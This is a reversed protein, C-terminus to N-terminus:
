LADCAFFYFIFLSLLVGEFLGSKNVHKTTKYLSAMSYISIYVYGYLTRYQCNPLHVIFNLLNKNKNVITYVHLVLLDLLTVAKM